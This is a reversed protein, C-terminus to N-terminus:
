QNPPAEGPQGQQPPPAPAPTIAGPRSAGVGGFPNGPPPRPAEPAAPEVSRPLPPLGPSLAPQGPRNRAPPEPREEEESESPDDADVDDEAPEREIPAIVRGLQPSPRAAPFTPAPPAPRGAVASVVVLRDYASVGQVLAPRPGLIYGGVDRLLIDLAQREPVGTLELTMPSGTLREPNILRTGGVRAWETLIARLSANQAVLNVKGMLFEVKVSQAYAPALAATWLVAGFLLRRTM